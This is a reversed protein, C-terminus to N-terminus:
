LEINMNKYYNILKSYNDIGITQPIILEDIDKGILKNDIIYEKNLFAQGWNILKDVEPTEINCLVGFAKIICLGFKIDEIFYRSNRDPVFGSDNQIMPSTIGSFGIASRIKKTLQASNEIKFRDKVKEIDNEDFSREKNLAEFISYLEEDLRLLIDSAENGWEEYFYPNKNYITEGECYDKFLEYLRSPHMTPNSPSLTISLYNSVHTCPIDILGALEDSVKKAFSNPIVGIKIFENKQKLCVREGYKNLRVIAPVRQSGFIICGKNRLEQVLYEKGGFGPIFGIVTGERVFKSIEKVTDKIMFSPHTILIYDAKETIERYSSTVCHINGKHFVGKEEEDLIIERKVQQPKSTHLWVKHEKKTSIYAALYTGINGAGIISINM